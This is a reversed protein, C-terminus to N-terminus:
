FDSQNLDPASIPTSAISYLRSKALGGGGDPSSVQFMMKRNQISGRTWPHHYKYFLFMLRLLFRVSHSNMRRAFNTLKNIM